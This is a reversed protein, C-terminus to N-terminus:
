IAGGDMSRSGTSAPNAIREYEVRLREVARHLRQNLAAASIDLMLAVQDRPHEEWAILRLLEQDSPRLRSLAELLLQREECGILLEDPEPDAPDAVAGLKSRLSVLRGHSRYQNALVRRAVGYLWSREAEIPPLEGVRRWAVAFTEAVADMADSPSSRRLCYALVASRHDRYIRRFSAHQSPATVEVGEDDVLFHGSSLM